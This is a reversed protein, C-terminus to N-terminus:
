RERRARVGQPEAGASALWPGRETFKQNRDRILFRFSETREDLGLATSYSIAPHARTQTCFYGTTGARWYM